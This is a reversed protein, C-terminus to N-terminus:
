KSRSSLLAKMDAIHDLMQRRAEDSNRDQIAAYIQKHFSLPRDLPVRTSLQAMSTLLNRHIVRFVLHCIRNGSARFICEHFALDADL